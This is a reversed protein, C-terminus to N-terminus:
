IFRELKLFAFMQQALEQSHIRRMVERSLTQSFINLSGEWLIERDIIALKRHHNDLCLFVQVGLKELQITADTAQVDLTNTPDIPNRTFVYIKVGRALLKQFLPLFMQVRATTIFPSEIIVEEKCNSLDNVFARYFTKEDFLQSTLLPAPSPQSRWPFRTM